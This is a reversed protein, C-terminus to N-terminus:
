PVELPSPVAIVRHMRIFRPVCSITALPAVCQSLASFDRIDM